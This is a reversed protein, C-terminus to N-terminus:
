KINNLSNYLEKQIDLFSSESVEKKLYILILRKENLFEPNQRNYTSLISYFRRRLRNRDVARKIKKGSVITAVKTFNLDKNLFVKTDFFEGRLIKYPSNKKNLINSIEFSSLKYKKKLM